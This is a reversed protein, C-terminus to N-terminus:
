FISIKKSQEAIDKKSLRMKGRGNFKYQIYGKGKFRYLTGSPEHFLEVTRDDIVDLVFYENGLYDYDLTLYKSYLDGTVDDINFVGTYDWYLDYINTGNPDQSSQFNGDGGGPLFQLFNEYDFENPDGYPSTYVKEWAVYEQMFYHINDYFLLDYDFTSRQYGVLIYSVNLQPYYLEIERNNLQTVQFSYFGDLDHSVDLEDAFTDYFGVDIGFGYGQDGIGVLNNNAKVNGNRFSLTFAIQMFPIQGSANSRNIDVYWLEYSNLVEELTVTPIPDITTTTDDVIVETYCSTFLTALLTFGFLLKLAKM